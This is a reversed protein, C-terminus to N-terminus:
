KRARFNSTSTKLSSSIEVLDKDNREEYQPTTKDGPGPNGSSVDEIIRTILYQSEDIGTKPTHRPICPM